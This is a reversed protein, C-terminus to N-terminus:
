NIKNLYLRLEAMALNLNERVNEYNKKITNMDGNKNADNEIDRVGLAQPDMGVYGVIPKLKHATAAITEYDNKSIATSITDLKDPVQDFFLNIMEAIFETNGGAIDELYQMNIIEFNEKDVEATEEPQEPETEFTNGKNTIWSILNDPFYPKRIVGDMGAQICQYENERLISATLALIRPRIGKMKRIRRTAEFGDMVPMQIDMFIIDYDNDKALRVAEEGNMAVDYRSNWKNLISTVVKINIENDDVVLFKLKSLTQASDQLEALRRVVPKTPISVIFESGSGLASNVRIEGDMAKVLDRVITLGAGIGPNKRNYGTDLQVFKDFIVKHHRPDIGMGTDKVSIILMLNDQERMANFHIGVEGSDTFKIANDLLNTIIQNLRRKDINVKPPFDEDFDVSFKLNKGIAQDRQVELISRTSEKLDMPIVNLEFDHKHVASTDLINNIVTMLNSLSLKISELYNKKTIDNELLDLQETLGIIGNMPTQLEHTINSLTHTKREHADKLAEMEQELDRIRYDISEAWTLSEFLDQLLSLETETFLRQITSFNIQVFGTFRLNYFIPIVLVFRVDLDNLYEQEFNPLKNVANQIITGSSLLTRWREFYPAYPVRETDKLDKVFASKDAEWLYKQSFSDDEDDQIHNFVYISDLTLIETLKKFIKNYKFEFNDQSHILQKIERLKRDLSLHGREFPIDKDKIIFKM